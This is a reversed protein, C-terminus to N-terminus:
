VDLSDAISVCVCTYQESKMWVDAERLWFTLLQKIQDFYMMAGKGGENNKKQFKKQFNTQLMIDRKDGHPEETM